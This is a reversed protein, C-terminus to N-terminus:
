KKTNLHKFAEAARPVLYAEEQRLEGAVMSDILWNLQV